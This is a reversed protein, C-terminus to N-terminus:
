CRVRKLQYLAKLQKNYERKEAKTGHYYRKLIDDIALEVGSCPLNQYQILYDDISASSVLGSFSLTIIILLIRM